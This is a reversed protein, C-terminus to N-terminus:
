TGGGAKKKRLAEARAQLEDLTLKPASREVRPRRPRGPGARHVRVLAERSSLHWRGCDPCAYARMPEGIEDGIRRAERSAVRESSYATKACSM